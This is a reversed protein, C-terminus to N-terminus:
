SNDRRGAGVAILGVVPQRSTRALTRWASRDTTSADGSGIPHSHWYGVLSEYHDSARWAGRIRERRSPCSREFSTSTALDGPGQETVAIVEIHAGRRVGILFGGTEDPLRKSRRRATLRVLLAPVFVLTERRVM